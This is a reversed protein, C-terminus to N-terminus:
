KPQGQESPNVLSWHMSTRDSDGAYYAVLINGDPTTVARPHGFQWRMMDQWFEEFQTSQGIQPGSARPHEYFVCEDDNWTQGFDESISIRMSAPHHRHVYIAALRNGGLPLPQCHQGQRGVAMPGSWSKADPGPWSIHNQIDIGRSRDHTWFMAVLEGSEPHQAIRQDWYFIDSESDAAVVQRDPWTNGGNSSIRLSATHQGPSRDDYSKWTEYPLALKGDSLQFIPGTISCGSEPSLDVVQQDFWNSGGDSSKAVITRTPLIGATDPNVFPLDPDSRDVWLFGGTLQGPAIETFYGAYVDGEVGDVSLTLGAHRTSWQQGDQSHMIRLRGGAIDRGAATRFACLYGGDRLRLLSTFANSQEDVQASASDFIIGSALVEM